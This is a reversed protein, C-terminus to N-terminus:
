DYWNGRKLVEGKEDYGLGKLEQSSLLRQRALPTFMQAVKPLTGSQRARAIIEQETQVTKETMTANYKNKDGYYDDIHKQQLGPGIKDQARKNLSQGIAFAAGAAAGFAIPSRFFKGALSM